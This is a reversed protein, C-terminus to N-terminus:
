VVMSNNMVAIQIYDGSELANTDPFETLNLVGADGLEPFTATDFSYSDRICMESGM